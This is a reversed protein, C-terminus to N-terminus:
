RIINFFGTMWNLVSLPSLKSHCFYVSDNVSVNQCDKGNANKGDNVNGVGNVNVNGGDNGYDNANANGCDNVDANGCDNAKANGGDNVNVSAGDKEVNEGDGSLSGVVICPLVSPCLMLVLFDGRGQVSRVSGLDDLGWNGPVAWSQESFVM